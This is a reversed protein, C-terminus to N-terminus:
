RLRGRTFMSIEEFRKREVGHEIQRAPGPALLQFFRHFAVHEVLGSRHAPVGLVSFPLELPLPTSEHQSPVNKTLLLARREGAREERSPLLPLLGARLPRRM